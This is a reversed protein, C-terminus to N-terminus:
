LDGASRSRHYCVDAFLCDAPKPRDDYKDMLRGATYDVITTFLMLLVYVPEGWAFFIIGSIFIVINKWKSPVLYYAILVLPLFVYLFTLSSFVM